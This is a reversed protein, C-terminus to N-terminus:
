GGYHVVTINCRNVDSSLTADFSVTEFKTFGTAFRFKGTEGFKAFGTAFRFKGTEGVVATEDSARNFVRGMIELTSGNYERNTFVISFVVHGTGGDLSATTYIGQAQAIQPSDKDPSATILDDAVVITGFSSSSWVRSPIGTVIASTANPGSNLEHFYVTLNTEKLQLRDYAKSSRAFIALLFLLYYYLKKLSTNSRPAM